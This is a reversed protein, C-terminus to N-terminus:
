DLLRRLYRDPANLFDRTVRPQRTVFRDHYTYTLIFGSLLFFFTVGANGHREYPLWSDAGLGGIEAVTVWGHRSASNMTSSNGSSNGAVGVSLPYASEVHEILLSM